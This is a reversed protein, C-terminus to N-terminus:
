RDKLNELVGISLNVNRRMFSRELDDDLKLLEIYHSWSLMDSLQEPEPYTSYMKRMYFVNSRSFGKGYRDTLDRSLRNLVDSGYEAKAHGKQEYEIIYQGIEWYSHVMVSNTAAVFANRGRQLVDGVNQLLSEYDADGNVIQIGYKEMNMTRESM